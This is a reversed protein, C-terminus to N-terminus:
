FSCSHTLQSSIYEKNWQKLLRPARAGLERNKRIGVEYPQPAELVFRLVEKSTQSYVVSELIRIKPQQGKVTPPHLSFLTPM